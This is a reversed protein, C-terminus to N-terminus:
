APLVLAMPHRPLCLEPLLWPAIVCSASASFFLSVWFAQLPYLVNFCLQTFMDMKSRPPRAGSAAGHSRCGTTMSGLSVEFPGLQLHNQEIKEGGQGTSHGGM